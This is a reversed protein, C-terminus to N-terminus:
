NSDSYSTAHPSEIPVSTPSRSHGQVAYNSLKKPRNTSTTSSLGIIDAFM